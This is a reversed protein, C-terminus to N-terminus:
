DSQQEPSFMFDEQRRCFKEGGCPVTEMLDPRKSLRFRGHSVQPRLQAALKRPKVLDLRGALLMTYNDSSAYECILTVLCSPMAVLVKAFHNYFYGTRDVWSDLWQVRYDRQLAEIVRYRSLVRLEGNCVHPKVDHKKDCKRCTWNETANGSLSSFTDHGYM